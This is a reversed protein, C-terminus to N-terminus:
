ARKEVKKEIGRHLRGWADCQTVMIFTADAGEHLGDMKTESKSSEGPMPLWDVRSELTASLNEDQFLRLSAPLTTTVLASCRFIMTREKRSDFPKMCM